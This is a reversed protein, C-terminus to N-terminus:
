LELNAAGYGRTFKQQHIVLRPIEATEVAVLAVIRPVNNSQKDPREEELSKNLRPSRRRRAPRKDRDGDSAYNPEEAEGKADASRKPAVKQPQIAPVLM